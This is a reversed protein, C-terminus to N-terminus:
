LIKFADRERWRWVYRRVVLSHEAKATRREARSCSIRTRRM